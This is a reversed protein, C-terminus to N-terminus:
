HTLTRCHSYSRYWGSGRGGNRGGRGVGVACPSLASGGPGGGSVVACACAGGTALKGVRAPVHPWWARGGLRPSRVGDSAGRCRRGWSSTRTMAKYRRSRVAGDADSAQRTAQPSATGAKSIPPPGPPRPWVHPRPCTSPRNPRPNSKSPPSPIPHAKPLIIDPKWSETGAPSPGM